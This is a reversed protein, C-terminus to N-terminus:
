MASEVSLAAFEEMAGDIFPSHANPRGHFESCRDIKAREYSSPLISELPYISQTTLPTARYSFPVVRM